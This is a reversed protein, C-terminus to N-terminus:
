FPQAPWSRGVLMRLMEGAEDAFKCSCLVFARMGRLVRIMEDDLM